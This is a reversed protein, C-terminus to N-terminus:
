LELYTTAGDQTYGLAVLANLADTHTWAAGTAPNVVAEVYAKKIQAATLQKRRLNAEEKWITLVAGASAAPVGAQEMATTATPDDILGNLYSRHATTYLSTQAKAVHPDGTSTAGGTWAAAVQAAFKPAWGIEELVTSVAATNGLDGAQALSRLVFASPYSYRNAYALEAYEPRINSRQIANRYPGAPVASYDTANANYNGGRALGTTVQHVALPRGLLGFLIKYDAGSLGSLAAGASGDPIVGRLEAEAYEHPTLLHRALYLAVDMYENRVNSEAISVKVDTATVQGRNYLQLMEGLSLPLGTDSVLVRAREPDIGHAAFEAITDLPSVPIRPVNGAGGPVPTVLLGSDAMIGRHVATALAGLDLRDTKLAELANFWQPELGTRQLATQFQADDLNGRRWAEYALGLPPGVNAINVLANFQSGGFGSQAAWDAAAKPDVQGQAVGQALVFADPPRDPHLSWAENALAQVLPSLAPGAATGLAYSLLLQLGLELQGLPNTAM